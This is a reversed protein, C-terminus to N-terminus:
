EDLYGKEKCITELKNVSFKMININKLDDEQNKFVEPMKPRNYDYGDSFFGGTHDHPTSTFWKDLDVKYSMVYDNVYKRRESLLRFLYNKGEVPTRKVIDLQLLFNILVTPDFTLDNFVLYENDVVMKDTVSKWPNPVNKIDKLQSNMEKFGGRHLKLWIPKGQPFKHYLDGPKHTMEQTCGDPNKDSTYKRLGGWCPEGTKGSAIYKYGDDTNVKTVVSFTTGYKNEQIWRDADTIAEEANDFLRDSENMLKIM